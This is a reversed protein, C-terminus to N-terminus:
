LYSSIFLYYIQPAQCGLKHHDLFFSLISALKFILQIILLWRKNLHPFTMLLTPSFDSKNNYVTISLQCQPESHNVTTPKQHNLQLHTLLYLSQLGTEWQSGSQDDQVMPEDGAPVPSGLDVTTIDM